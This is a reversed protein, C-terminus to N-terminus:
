HEPGNCLLMLGNQSYTQSTFLLPVPSSLTESSVCVCVTSFLVYPYMLFTRNPLGSPGIRCM